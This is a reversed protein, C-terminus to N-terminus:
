SGRRRYVPRKPIRREVVVRSDQPLKWTEWFAHDGEHVCEWEGGGITLRTGPVVLHPDPLIVTQSTGTAVIEGSSM